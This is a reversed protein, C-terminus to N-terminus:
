PPLSDSDDSDEINELGPTPPPKDSGPVAPVEFILTGLEEKPIRRECGFITLLGLGVLAIERLRM